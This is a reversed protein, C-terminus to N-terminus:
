GQVTLSVYENNKLRTWEPGGDGVPKHQGDKGCFGVDDIDMKGAFGDVYHLAHLTNAAFNAPKVMQGLKGDEIMYGFQVSSSMGDRTVAGGLTGVLVVGKKVDKILAALDKFWVKRDAPLIYTNSMRPIRPDGLASFAGGNPERGYYAATERNLIFDRAIGREALRKTKVEVGEDDILHTGFGTDYRDALPGDVIHVVDAAVRGRPKGEKDVIGSNGSKIIDAEFNHGLAEHVFVGLTTAHLVLHDLAKVEAESLTRATLMNVTNTFWKNIHKRTATNLKYGKGARSVLLSVGKINGLRMRTQTMRGDAAKVRTVIQLFTRPLVQTKFVRRTDAIVKEEIEHYFWIEPNLKVGLQQNQKEVERALAKVDQDLCAFVKGAALVREVAIGYRQKKPNPIPALAIPREPAPSAKLLKVGQDIGAKLAKDELVGVKVEAARGKALLRLQVRSKLGFPKTVIRDPLQQMEIKAIREYLIDAYGVKTRAYRLARNLIRKVEAERAVRPIPM